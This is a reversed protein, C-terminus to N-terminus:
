EHDSRHALAENWVDGGDAWTRFWHRLSPSAPRLGDHPDEDRVPEWDDADYLLVPNDVAALSLHWEMTCGGYALHLWSAPVGRTRNREHIDVACPWDSLHGPPRNGGTLSALGSDPGFGGDAVETYVRRLLEPLPRGIRHEAREVEAPAVPPFLPGRPADAYYAAAEEAGAKLQVTGDGGYSVIDDRDQDLRRGGYRETLWAVPVDAADFRRGPDWARARLREILADDDGDGTEPTDYPSHTM